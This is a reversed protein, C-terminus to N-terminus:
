GAQGISIMLLDVPVLRPVTSTGAPAVRVSAAAAILALFSPTVAETMLVALSSYRSWIVLEAEPSAPATVMALPVSSGPSGPEDNWSVVGPWSAVRSRPPATRALDAVLM